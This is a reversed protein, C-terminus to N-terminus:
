RRGQPAARQPKPKEPAPQEPPTASAVQTKPKIYRMNTYGKDNKVLDCTFVTGIMLHPGGDNKLAQDPVGMRKFDSKAYQFREPEFSIYRFYKRGLLDGADADLVNCVFHLYENGNRDIRVEVTEIEMTYKGPPLEEFGAEPMSEVDFGWTQESMKESEENRATSKTEVSQKPPWVGQRAALAEHYKIGTVDEVFGDSEEELTKDSAFYCYSEPHYFLRM